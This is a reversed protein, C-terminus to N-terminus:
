AVNQTIFIGIQQEIEYKFQVLDCSARRSAGTVHFDGGTKQSTVKDKM